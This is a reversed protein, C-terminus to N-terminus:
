KIVKENLLIKAEKKNEFTIKDWSKYKVWDKKIPTVVTYEWEFLEDSESESEDDEMITSDETETNDLEEIKSNWTMDPDITDDESDKTVWLLELMKEKSDFNNFELGKEKAIKKLQKASLEELKEM